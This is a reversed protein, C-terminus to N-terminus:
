RQLRLGNATRPTPLFIQWKGGTREQWVVYVNGSNNDVAVRPLMSSGSTKSINQVSGWNGNIRQKFYIEENNEKRQIWVVYVNGELDVAVDPECFDMYTQDSVSIPETWNNVDSPNPNTSYWVVSGRGRRIWILHARGSGDVDIEPTYAGTQFPLQRSRNWSNQSGHNFFLRFRDPMDIDDYWVVYCNNNTPDSAITPCASGGSDPQATESINVSNRWSNDAFAKYYVEYNPYSSVATLVYHLRGASDITFDPWPGSPGIKIDSSTNVPNRWSGGKNTNYFVQRRGGTGELWIVHASGESDAVVLPNASLAGSSSIKIPTPLESQVAFLCSSNWEEARGAFIVGGFILVPFCCLFFFFMRTSNIKNKKM